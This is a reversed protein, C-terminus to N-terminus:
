DFWIRVNDPLPMSKGNHHSVWVIKSYAEASPTKPNSQTFVRYHMMFSSRGPESIYMEIRLSDPYFIPAIFTCGISVLVPHNDGDIPINKEYLLQSRAEEFYRFYLSNNVHGFADMDGWRVPIECTHFLKLNEPITSKV